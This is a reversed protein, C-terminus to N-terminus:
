AITVVAKGTLKREQVLKLLGPLKGLAHAQEIKYARIDKDILGTQIAAVAHRVKDPAHDIYTGFIMGLAAANKVLLINAPYSPIAGAPFGLTVIRGGWSAICRLALGGMEGGVPDIIVDAGRKGTLEAVRDRLSSTGYDITEAAGHEKMLACREASSAAGIVKAGARTALVISALGVGGAGGLVLCTEGNQLQARWHLAVHATTYNIFTAAATEFSLADPVRFLRSAPVAAYEAYGGGDLLAVVRDGARWDKVTAGVETIEGAIEMGPVFPPESKLQYKGAIVVLDAFNVGAARVRVLVEKDNITPTPREGIELIEPGGFAPCIAAKM